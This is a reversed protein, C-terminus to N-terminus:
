DGVIRFDRLRKFVFKLQSFRFFKILSFLPRPRFFFSQFAKPQWQKLVTSSITEPVWTPEHYSDKSYDTTYENKHEQWLASGPLLDLLLFQARDLPIKKAFSISNQITQKTEGPLGLIFFGQTMIGLKHALNVATEIDSLTERKNINNLIEQNGCEIGFVVYYCGSKKM